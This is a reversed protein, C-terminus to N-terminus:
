APTKPSGASEKPGTEVVFEAPITFAFTSGKGLESSIELESRYHELAHKVISLGLGTGGAERSRGVDVRYFRETLRPLHKEPIGYGTDRIAIRASDGSRELTTTITGGAPTYRIANNILNSCAILLDEMNVRLRFSDDLELVFDHGGNQESYARAEEVVDRLLVAPSIVELLPTVEAMRGELRALTLLDELICRMRECQRRMRSLPKCRVEDDECQLEMQEISGQLVALPTRLEHSANAIFDRRMQDLRNERTVDRALLLYQKHGYPVIKLMLESDLSVPSTLLLPENFKGKDLYVNFDPDRILNTVPQGADSKRMGLLIGAADNRWQIRFNRDLTVTADPLARSSTNFAKLLRRVQKKRRATKRKSVELRYYLYGWVGPTFGPLKKRDRDLWRILRFLNFVHWGLYVLLGALVLHGSYGTTAGLLWLVGLYAGLSALERVWYAPLPM